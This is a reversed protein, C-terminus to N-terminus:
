LELKELQYRLRARRRRPSVTKLAEALEDPTRRERLFVAVANGYTPVTLQYATEFDRRLVRIKKLRRQLEAGDAFNVVLIGRDSLMESLRRYWERSFSVARRPEGLHDSFLDDIILDFGDGAYSKMWRDAELEVLEAPVADLGFFRRAIEIHVPNREIAVFRDWRVLDHLQRVVAGGGLGLLLVGSLFRDARWLVPLGLLDWVGGNFVLDPHYQSHLVGNTYLRISRGATRIEYHRKGATHKWILAM